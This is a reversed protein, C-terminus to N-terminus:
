RSPRRACGPLRATARRSRRCRGGCCARRRADHRLDGRDHPRAGAAGHVRGRDGVEDDHHLVRAVHEHGTGVHDLRDRVLVHRLFVEAARHRVVRRAADRM